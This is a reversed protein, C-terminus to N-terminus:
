SYELIPRVRTIYLHRTVLPNNFEKNWRNIFSLMSSVKAMVIAHIISYSFRASNKIRFVRLFKGLNLKLNRYECWDLNDQLLLAEYVINVRSYYILVKSIHFIQSIDDVSLIFLFPGIHSGRSVM